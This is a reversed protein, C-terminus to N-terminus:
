AVWEFHPGDIFDSGSHRTKYAQVEAMYGGESSGFDALVRDWAGGWRIRSAIGLQTAAQDMARAIKACGGWDWAAKGGIWPVLDVAHSKGDAQPLHKSAMTRSQGTDVLTRQRVRTRMTEFVTFDQTTLTIALMVTTRMPEILDNLRDLSAGGLKFIPPAPAAPPIVLAPKALEQAAFASDLIRRMMEADARGIVVVDSM